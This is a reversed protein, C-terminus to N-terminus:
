ERKGHENSVKTNELQKLKSLLRTITFNVNKFLDNQLFRQFEVKRGHLGVPSEQQRYEQVIKYNLSRDMRTHNHQLYKSCLTSFNDSM